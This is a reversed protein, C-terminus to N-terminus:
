YILLDALQGDWILSASQSNNLENHWRYQFHYIILIYDIYKPFQHVVRTTNNTCQSMNSNMYICILAENDVLQYDWTSSASQIPVTADINSLM